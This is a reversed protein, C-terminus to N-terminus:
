SCLRIGLEVCDEISILSRGGEKRPIYLIDVDSKPHLAGYIAFLTKTERVVAQLKSKRLSGCAASYQLLSVAWTNAGHVLNLKSKLVKRLM